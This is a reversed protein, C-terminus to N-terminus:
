RCAAFAYDKLTIADAKGFQKALMQRMPWRSMSRMSAARARIMLRSRPAFGHMGGPPLRMGDAVYSAMERQYAGFAAAPDGHAALEGALVYAGVISMSTGLGALPSGCYGADGLLVVRGRHWRGVHVQDVSDFFFDGAGPMAALLSPVKWGAGALNRAILDRQEDRSLRGYRTKSLFNLSAMAPGERTPRVLAVRGGPANYMHAWHGLDDPAPVTFLAGYGGLPRVFDTEPGFALARVGSHVGDAGVVVDYRGSGGSRFTARGDPTLETIRDGFRYDATAATAEVLIRSLDGRSIEIEAVIGEGGFMDAPMEALRRGHTDVLAIGREDVRSARIAPMLGMDSVVGRAVGRIDVAQGGPRRGPAKEVITVDAGARHLWFALAPGAIGAGSILVRM